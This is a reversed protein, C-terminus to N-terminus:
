FFPLYTLLDTQIERKSQRWEHGVLVDSSIIKGNEDRRANLLYVDFAPSSLNVGSAWWVEGDAPLDALFERLKGITLVDPM